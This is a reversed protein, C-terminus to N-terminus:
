KIKNIYSIDQESEVGHQIQRGAISIANTYMVLKQVHNLTHIEPM